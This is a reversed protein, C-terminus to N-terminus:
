VCGAAFEALDVPNLNSIDEHDGVSQVATIESGPAVISPLLDANQAKVIITDSPSAITRYRAVPLLPDGSAPNWLPPMTGAYANRVQALANPATLAVAALDVAPKAGYWCEGPLAGFRLANLTAVGGMSAAVLMQNDTGARTRAFQSLDVLSQVGVDNGWNNGGMDSSAVMWGNEMIVDFWTSTELATENGGQGHSWLAVGVTPVDPNWRVLISQGDLNGRIQGPEDVTATFIGPGPTFVPISPGTPTPTATPIPKRTVAPAPVTGANDSQAPNYNFAVVVIAAGVVAAAILGIPTRRKIVWRRLRRYWPKRRRRHSSSGM